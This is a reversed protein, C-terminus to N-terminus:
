GKTLITIKVKIIATNDLAKNRLKEESFTLFVILIETTTNAIIPSM